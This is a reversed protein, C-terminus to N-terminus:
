ATKKYNDLQTQYSDPYKFLPLAPVGDMDIKLKGAGKKGGRTSGFCCAQAEFDQASLASAKLEEDDTADLDEYDAPSPPSPPSLPSPPFM